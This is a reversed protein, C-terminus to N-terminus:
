CQAVLEGLHGLLERRAATRIRQGELRDDLLREASRRWTTPHTDLLSWSPDDPLSVFWAFTPHSVDPNLQLGGDPLLGTM